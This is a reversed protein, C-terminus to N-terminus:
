SSYAERSGLPCPYTKCASDKSIDAPRGGGTASAPAPWLAIAVGLTLSTAVAAGTRSFSWARSEKAELQPWMCVISGFILVMCGFWIFSV